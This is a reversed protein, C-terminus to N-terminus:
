SAIYWEINNNFPNDFNNELLKKSFVNWGSNNYVAFYNNEGNFGCERFTVEMTPDILYDSVLEATWGNRIYFRLTLNAVVIKM